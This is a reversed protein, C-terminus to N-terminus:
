WRAWVGLGVFTDTGLSRTMDASAVAGVHLAKIQLLEQHAMVRIAQEGGKLGAYAGIMTKTNVALWPLPEAKVYQTTEGTNTNTVATVTLPREDANVRSSSVVVQAADAQVSDPLKLKTKIAPKYARVTGSKVAVPAKEERKVEPAPAAVVAVQQPAPEPQHFLGYVYWSAFVMAGISLVASFLIHMRGSM